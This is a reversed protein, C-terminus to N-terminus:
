ESLALFSEFFTFIIKTYGINQFEVHNSVLIIPSGWDGSKRIKKALEIGTKGPVEIDFIYIKNVSNNDLNLYDDFSNLEFVNYNIKNGGMIRNIVNRYIKVFKREDEYIIFNM